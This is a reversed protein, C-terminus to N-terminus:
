LGIEHREFPRWRVAASSEDDSGYWVHVQDNTARARPKAGPAPWDTRSVRSVFEQLADATNEFYTRLRFRTPLPLKLMILGSLHTSLHLTSGASNGHLAKVIVGYEDTTVAFARADLLDAVREAVADTLRAYDPV